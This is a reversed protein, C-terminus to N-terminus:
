GHQQFWRSASRIMARVVLPHLVRVPLFYVRGRTGHFRVTTTVRLLRMQEDVAIACRVDLHREDIAFLVEDGQERFAIASPDTRPVGLLPILLQRLGLSARVWGPVSSRDFVRRAWAAPDVSDHEALAVITADAFDPRPIDRLAISWATMDQGEM